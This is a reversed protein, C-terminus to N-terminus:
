PYRQRSLLSRSIHFATGRHADSLGAHRNKLFVEPQEEITRHGLRYTAETLRLVRAPLLCDVVMNAM